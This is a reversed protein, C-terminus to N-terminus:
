TVVDSVVDSVSVIEPGEAFIEANDAVEMPDEAVEKDVKEEWLSDYEEKEKEKAMAGINKAAQYLEMSYEMLKKEDTPPVIGGKMLRRAVEMIKGMDIAYEEMAEGQQKAVEMNAVAAWQETVKEMYAQYESQKEDVAQITLELVAAENAYVNKGDPTTNIKRELEKKQKQLAIQQEHYSKIQTGYTQRVEKITM